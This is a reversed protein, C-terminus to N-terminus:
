FQRIFNQVLVATSGPRELHAAHHAEPVFEARGDVVGDAIASAERSFKVDLAGALAMTPMSLSALEPGLWRQTGTGARRLSGALGAADTSRTARELPDNPLAAFMERGLWEDLFGEAGIVEIHAALTEDSRRREEHEADDFIGRTAGLVVLARVREPSRIALHLAVRAGFSYGGLILPERPLVEALLDATEDLSALIPANEGHGPLDLTLLENTGALISRFQHASDKTQTFGHLWVLLPGSGRRDIGLLSM